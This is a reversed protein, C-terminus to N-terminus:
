PIASPLKVEARAMRKAYSEGSEGKELGHYDKVRGSEPNNVDIM